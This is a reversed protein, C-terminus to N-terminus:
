LESVNEQGSVPRVRLGETKNTCIFEKDEIEILYLTIREM